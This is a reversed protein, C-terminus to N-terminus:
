SHAQQQPISELWALQRRNLEAITMQTKYRYHAHNKEYRMEVIGENELERMRRGVNQPTYATKEAVIRQLDGSAIWAQSYYRKLFSALRDKLSQRIVPKREPRARKGHAHRRRAGHCTDVTLIRIPM